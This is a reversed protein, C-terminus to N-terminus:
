GFPAKTRCPDLCIAVGATFFDYFKNPLLSNRAFLKFMVSARALDEWIYVTARDINNDPCVPVIYM